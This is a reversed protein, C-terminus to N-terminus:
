AKGLSTAYIEPRTKSSVRQCQWFSTTPKWTAYKKFCRWAACRRNPNPFSLLNGVNWHQRPTHSNFIPRQLFQSINLACKRGLQVRTAPSMYICRSEASSYDLSSTINIKSFLSPTSTEFMFASIWVYIKQSAPFLGGFTSDWKGNKSPRTVVRDMSRNYFM